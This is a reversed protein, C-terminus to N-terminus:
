EGLSAWYLLKKAEATTTLQFIFYISVLLLFICSIKQNYTYIKFHDFDATFSSSFWAYFIFLGNFVIHFLILFYSFLINFM